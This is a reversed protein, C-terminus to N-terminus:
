IASSYDLQPATGYRAMLTVAVVVELPNEEHNKWVASVPLGGQQEALYLVGVDESPLVYCRGGPTLRQLVKAGNITLTESEGIGSSEIRQTM